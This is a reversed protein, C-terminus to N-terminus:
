RFTINEEMERDTLVYILRINKFGLYEKIKKIGEM